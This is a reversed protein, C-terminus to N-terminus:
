KIADLAQRIDDIIDEAAEIGVSFRILDPAIGAERLQEDSLQRHTHSAPHLVCSRADAVHTVINVLKLADMFKIATNRDGKLGFALVGCSGNPLYKTALEHNKNDELGSYNVWAVRDDDHLFEAVAQANKCHQPMRLHLTELGLNLLFSNQPAPISGLDRMLQAVLKTIYCMKGFAKTYTLGHYSDDPMCLGPFKDAHKEWDFHGSDVIVGGVQTAHGDMYKTTSHTVIDCGWEFPRCNIPTAFTNDIILPVGNRHAVAAFKEIDLVNCGPNSITEGFMVKTNPRFAKQLEEESAEPNVFTCDIGLKRMTVNFLNYTGGYIETSAVVHGGAECINFVAYFNAAQGSSTLMAGVGGELACIKNAVADNTPNQLRSYFYGEKKLDFLMAMEESNDYKFTTSQIIPLVRPEGNKPAWGGQVCLTERKM